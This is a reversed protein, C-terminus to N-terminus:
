RTREQKRNKVQDKNVVNKLQEKFFNVKEVVSEKQAQKINQKATMRKFAYEMMEVNKSEFFVLFQDNTPDKQVSFSVGLNNLEKKMAKIDDNNIEINMLNGKSNLEQVTKEETNKALYNGLGGEEHVKLLLKEVERLIQKANYKAVRLLITCVDKEINDSM